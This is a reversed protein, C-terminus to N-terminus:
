LAHRKVIKRPAVSKWATAMVHRVAEQDAKDLLVQTWGKLGWSGKVPQLMGQLTEAFLRQEDPTLKLVAREDNPRLTAFIKGSVRFDTTDFHSGQVSEPFSLALDRFQEATMM